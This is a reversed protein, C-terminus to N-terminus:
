IVKISFNLASFMLGVVIALALFLAAWYRGLFSVVRKRGDARLAIWGSFMAVLIVFVLVVAKM